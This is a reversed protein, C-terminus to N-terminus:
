VKAKEHTDVCFLLFKTNDGEKISFGIHSNSIKKSIHMKLTENVLERYDLKSLSFKQLSMLLEQKGKNFNNYFHLKATEKLLNKVSINLKQVSSRFNLVDISELVLKNDVKNKELYPIYKELIYDKVIENKAKKLLIQLFNIDIYKM